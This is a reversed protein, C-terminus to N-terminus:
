GDVVPSEFREDEVPKNNSSKKLIRSLLIPAILTTNIVMWVIAAIIGPGIVESFTSTAVAVFILGVEGRPVMGIGILSTNMGKGLAGLASMYKGIFALLSIVVGYLFISGNALVSIDVESGTYVFFIPVLIYNLPKMEERIRKTMDSEGAVVGGAFAGVIPHLGVFHAAAGFVIAFLFSGTVFTGPSPVREFFKFITPSLKRGIVVSALLFALAKAAIMGVEGGSINGTGGLM